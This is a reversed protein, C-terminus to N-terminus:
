SRFHWEHWLRIKFIQRLRLMALWEARYFWWLWCCCWYSVKSVGSYICRISVSENLQDVSKSQLWVTPKRDSYLRVPGYHPEGRLILVHGLASVRALDWLILLDGERNQNATRDDHYSSRRRGVWRQPATAISWLWVEAYDGVFASFILAPLPM